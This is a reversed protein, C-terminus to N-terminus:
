PTEELAAIAVKVREIRRRVAARETTLAEERSELDALDRRLRTLTPDDQITAVHWRRSRGRGSTVIVGAKGLAACDVYTQHLPLGLREAVEPSAMGEPGASRIAAVISTHRAAVRSM